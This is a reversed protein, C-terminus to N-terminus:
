FDKGWPPDELLEEFGVRKNAQVWAREQEGVRKALGLAAEASPFHRHLQSNDFHRRLFDEGGFVYAAVAYAAGSPLKGSQTYNRSKVFKRIAEPYQSFHYVVGNAVAWNQYGMVWAKIGLYEMLGGPAAEHEALCGYGGIAKYVDRRIMHPMGKWSVLKEHDPAVGWRGFCTTRLSLSVLRARSSHHGWQLPTHVFGIPEGTHRDFFDLSASIADRGILSHSDVYFLYEGKAFTAAQEMTAAPSPQTRFDLRLMRDKAQGALLLGVAQTYEPDSNDVVVVEGSIGRLAEVASLVTVLLMQLDNRNAIIVSVQPREGDTSDIVVEWPQRNPGPCIGLRWLSETATKRECKRLKECGCDVPNWLNCGSCIRRLREIIEQSRSM